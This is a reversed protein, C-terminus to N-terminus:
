KKKIMKPKKMNGPAIVIMMGGKKGNEESDMEEEDEEEMDEEESDEQEKMAKYLAMFKAMELATLSYKKDKSKKKLPM